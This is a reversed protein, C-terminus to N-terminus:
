ANDTENLARLTNRIGVSGSTLLIVSWMVGLLVWSTSISFPVILIMISLVAGIGGVAVYRSFKLLLGKGFYVVATAIGLGSVLFRLDSDPALWGRLTGWFGISASLTVILLAPVSLRWDIKQLPKVYGSEAWFVNRRIRQIVGRSVLLSMALVPVLLLLCAVTINPHSVLMCLYWLISSTSYVSAILLGGVLFVAANLLDVLGDEYERRRATRTLEDLDRIAQM